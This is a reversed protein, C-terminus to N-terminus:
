ALVSLDDEIWSAVTTATRDADRVIDRWTFRL